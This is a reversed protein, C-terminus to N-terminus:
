NSSVTVASRFVGAANLGAVALNAMAQIANLTDNKSLTQGVQSLEWAAAAAGLVMNIKQQGAKPMPVAVEVAQVAQLIAPFANFVALFNKM